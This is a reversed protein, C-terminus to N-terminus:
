GTAPGLHDLVSALDPPLPEDFRVREGTAPHDFASCAQTCSRATCRCRTACAAPVRRRRRHSSRHGRPARPDPAHARDRAQVRGARRRADVVHARVEYATRAPRGESACRWARAARRRGVSRRTSSGARPRPCGGYSRRTAVTSPAGRCSRSWRSTRRAGLPRRRAAREDRPRAPARDRSPVPRRRRRARSLAGAARLRAHRARSGRGPARGPRGAERRRDRRRRRPAGRCRGAGPGAAGRSRARAAARDVEGAELRRSKAVTDGDVLM